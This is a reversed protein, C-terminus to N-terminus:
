GRRASKITKSDKAIAGLIVLVLSSLSAIQQSMLDMKKEINQESTVRTSFGAQKARLFAASSTVLAGLRGEELMEDIQEELLQEKEYEKFSKM